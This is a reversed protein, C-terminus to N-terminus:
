PSAAVPGPSRRRSGTRRSRPAPAIELAGGLYSEVVQPHTVVEQPRGEAIVRGLELAIMRDSVATILSMDHEIVVMSCDVERRIRQLLEGLGETEQQAIGSSPEDLLLVTPDHAIAMGLDVIRRSGTSLESALRERLHGLGLLEVLDAVTWAVDDEVALADPLHLMSALHDRFPLHRELALALNEAVTLSSFLRSDQFSRGLGAWARRDPSWGLIDTGELLVQGEDHRVFGSILDFITTKGAGNPGILGLIEGKALDFSAKDAAQVGGFRKSLGSVSLVPAALPADEGSRRRAAGPETASTRESKLFLAKVVDDRGLLEATPGSFRIEGKEMFYAREAVNLATNVSQEVLVITIGRSHLGRVTELLQEVVVPALGLSLEDILLLEPKAMMATALSLMQQEGGSLNGAMQDYREHLRPFSELVAATAEEVHRRDDHHLWAAARLHEAPTLTPFIGEKGPLVQVVGRRARAVAGTGTVDRGGIEITGRSPELLGSIARLLTSKGAGNSGLLAVIEGRGVEFDIGFLVQVHEYGVDLGRCALIVDGAERAAASSVGDEEPRTRDLLKM